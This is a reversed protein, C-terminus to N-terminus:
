LTVCVIYMSRTKRKGRHLTRAHIDATTDRLSSLAPGLNRPPFSPSCPAQQSPSSNTGEGVEMKRVGMKGVKPWFLSTKDVRLFYYSTSLVLTPLGFCIVDCTIPIMGVVTPCIRHCTYRSINSMDQPYIYRSIKQSPDVQTCMKYLPIYRCINCM